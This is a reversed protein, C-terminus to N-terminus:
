ADDDGMEDYYSPRSYGHRRQVTEPRVRSGPSLRLRHALVSMLRVAREHVKFWPNIQGDSVAGGTEAMKAAAQEALCTAQVYSVLLPQDSPRFHAAACSGVIAIFLRKEVATLNAPPSLRSVRGDVRPHWLTLEAASRRPM